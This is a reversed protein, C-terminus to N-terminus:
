PQPRRVGPGPSGPGGPHLFPAGDGPLLAARSGGSLGPVPRGASHLGRHGTGFLGAHGAVGGAAWANEDHVEGCVNRGPILGPKRPPMALPPGAHEGDPPAPHGLPITFGLTNLGLPRYIQERCFRDLGLGSVAEVVAQLLMFGLDSYLTATDPPHVLPAAAALRPLLSVRAEPPAKLVELYFPEWAPLGARHALLQALTLPRKDPPLWAVPLFEGLTADPALRGADTLVMLALATALPKTLSALDFVPIM